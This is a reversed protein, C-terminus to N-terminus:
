TDLETLIELMRARELATRLATPLIQIRKGLDELKPALKYLM